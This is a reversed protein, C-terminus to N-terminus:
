VKMCLIYWAVPSIFNSSPTQQSHLLSIAQKTSVCNVLFCHDCNKLLVNNSHVKNEDSLVVIFTSKIYIFLNNLVSWFAQAQQGDESIGYRFIYTTQWAWIKCIPKLGNKTACYIVQQWWMYKITRIFATDSLIIDKYM